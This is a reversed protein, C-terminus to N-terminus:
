FKLPQEGFILNSIREDLNVRLKREGLKYLPTFDLSKNLKLKEQYFKINTKVIEDLEEILKIIQEGAFNLTLITQHSEISQLIGMGQKKQPTLVLCFQSSEHRSNGAHAVDENRM